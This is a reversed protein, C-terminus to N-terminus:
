PAVEQWSIPTSTVITTTTSSGSGGIVGAPLVSTLDAWNLEFQKVNKISIYGGAAMMGANLTYKESASQLLEIDSGAYLLGSATFKKASLHLYSNKSLLAMGKLGTIDVKQSGSGENIEIEGDSALTVGTGTSDITNWGSNMHIYEKAYIVGGVYITNADNIELEQKVYVPGTISLFDSEELHLWGNVWIPGVLTVNKGKVEMDGAVYLPGTISLSDSEPLQLFKNVWIPGVLTVNNGSVTMNGTVYIPENVAAKEGGDITIDGEAYLPGTVTAGHDVTYSIGGSPWAVGTVLRVGTTPYGGHSTPFTVTNNTTNTVGLRTPTAIQLQVQSGAQSQTLLYAFALTPTTVPEAIVRTCTISGPPSIGSPQWKNFDYVHGVNPNGGNIELTDAVIKHPYYASSNSLIAAGQVGQANVILDGKGDTVVLDMFGNSTMPRKWFGSLAGSSSSTTTLTIHITNQIARSATSSVFGKATITVTWTTDGTRNGNEVRVLATESTGIGPTPIFGSTLFIYKSEALKAKAWDIGAEALNFAQEAEQNIRTTGVETVSIIAIAGVVILAVLFIFFVTVLALGKQNLIKHKWM